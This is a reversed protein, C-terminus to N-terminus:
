EMNRAGNNISFNLTMLHKVSLLKNVMKLIVSGTIKLLTRRVNM